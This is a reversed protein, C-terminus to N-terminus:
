WIKLIHVSSNCVYLKMSAYVALSLFKIGGSEAPGSPPICKESDPPILSPNHSPLLRAISTSYRALAHNHKVPVGTLARLYCFNLIQFCTLYRTSM